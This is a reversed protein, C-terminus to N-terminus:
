TVINELCKFEWLVATQYVYSNFARLKLLVTFYNPTVIVSGHL